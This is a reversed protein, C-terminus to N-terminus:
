STLMANLIILIILVIFAKLQPLPIELQMEKVVLNRLKLMLFVSKLIFDPIKILHRGGIKNKINPARHVCLGIM